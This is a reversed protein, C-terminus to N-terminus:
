ARNMSHEDMNLVSRWAGIFQQKKKGHPNTVNEQSVFDFDIKRHTHTPTKSSCKRQRNLFPFPLPYVDRM